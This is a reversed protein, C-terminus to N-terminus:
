NGKSEHFKKEDEKISDIFDRAKKSLMGMEDKKSEL